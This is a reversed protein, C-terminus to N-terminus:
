KGDMVPPWLVWDGDAIGIGTGFQSRLSEVNARSKWRSAAYNTPKGDAGRPARGGDDKRDVGISYVVPKGDVLRYKIPGGDFRDLPVIPLLRPTLDDLRGPYDGHRRRHLELAIAVLTGDRSQEANQASLGLQSLAPVLLAVPWYRARGLTGNIHLNEIEQDPSRSDDWKWQPTGAWTEARDLARNYISMMENRGAMAAGAVPGIAVEAAQEVGTMSPQIGTLHVDFNSLKRLYEMGPATMHGGGCGDDTYVRQMFDAFMMREGALQPRFGEDGGGGGGFAALRHSLVVLQDDTLLDPHDALVEGLTQEALALIAWSVLDGIIIPTQRSHEALGVMATIDGSVRSGDGTLQAVTCDAALHRAIARFQGLHPLVLAIMETAQGPPTPPVVSTPPTEPHLARELEVDTGGAAICGLKPMAAAQRITGLGDQTRGIYAVMEDWKQDMPKIAPWTGTTDADFLSMPPPETAILARRYVPWARESEPVAISDANLLAAYDTRINPRGLFFRAALVTYVMLLVLLLVGISKLTRVMARWPWPRSRRKGRAILRAASRADGFDGSLEAASRGAALGDAFHTALERAVDCKESRWLRTRRVVVLVLDALQVPLGAEAIIRRPDLRASLRGRLADIVPTYRMRRLLSPEYAARAESEPRAETTM